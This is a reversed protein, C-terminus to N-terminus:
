FKMGLYVSIVDDNANEINQYEFGTYVRRSLKKNYELTAEDGNGTKLADGSDFALMFTGGGVNAVSMGISYATSDDPNDNDSVTLGYTFDGSTYTGGLVVLSPDTTGNEINTVQGGVTFSDGEYKVAVITNMADDELSEAHEDVTTTEPDDEVEQIGELTAALVFSMSSGSVAYILANSLEGNVAGNDCAASGNNTFIDTGNHDFIDKGSCAFGAADNQTGFSISGFGGKLGVYSLDNTLGSTNAEDAQDHEFEIRYFGTLGNGLDESGYLGVIMKGSEMSLQEASQVQLRINGYITNDGAFASGSLLSAIVTAIITSKKM